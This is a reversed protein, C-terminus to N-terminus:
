SRLRARSRPQAAAALTREAYGKPITRRPSGAVQGRPARPSSAVRDRTPSGPRPDQDERARALPDSRHALTATEIFRRAGLGGLLADYFAAARVLNNTGVMAYGIQAM